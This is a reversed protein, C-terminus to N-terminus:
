SFGCFEELFINVFTEKVSKSFSHNFSNFLIISEFSSTIIGGPHCSPNLKPQM